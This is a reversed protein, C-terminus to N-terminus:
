NRLFADLPSQGSTAERRLRERQEDSIVISDVVSHGRQQHRPKADKRLVSLHQLTREDELVICVEAGRDLASLRTGRGSWEVWRAASSGEARARVVSRGRGFRQALRAVAQEYSAAGLAQPRYERYMKWLKDNIFFYFARHDDRELVLMSEGSGHRFEDAVQSVDWGTIRGSFTVSGRGLRQRKLRLEQFLADQRLVDLEKRIRARYEVELEERLRAVVEARSMAWSMGQLEAALEAGPEAQVQSRVAGEAEDLSFEMVAPEAAVPTSLSVLGAIVVLVRSSM